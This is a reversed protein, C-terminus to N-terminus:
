KKRFGQTVSPNLKAVLNIHNHKSYEINDKESYTADGIVTEIEMGAVV